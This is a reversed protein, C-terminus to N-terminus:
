VAKIKKTWCQVSAGGWCCCGTCRTRTWRCCGDEGGRATQLLHAPHRTVAVVGGEQREDTAAGAWRVPDQPSPAGGDHPAKLRIIKRKGKSVLCVKKQINKQRALTHRGSRRNHRGNIIKSKQGLLSLIFDSGFNICYTCSNKNKSLLKSLRM